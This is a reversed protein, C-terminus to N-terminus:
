KKRLKVFGDGKSVINYGEYLKKLTVASGGAVCISIAAVTTSIGWIAVTAGASTTAIAGLSAVAHPGGAIVIPTKLAIIVAVGVAGSAVLWAVKGTAKIKITKEALDGKITIENQNSKVASALEKENRVDM